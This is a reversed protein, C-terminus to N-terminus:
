KTLGEALGLKLTRLEKELDQKEQQLRQYEKYLYPAYHVLLAMSVKDMYNAPLVGRLSETIRKKSIARIQDLQITSNKNLGACSGQPVDILLPLGKGYKKSTIPAIVVSDMGGVLVVAPHDKEAEHGVGQGLRVTILKGRRYENKVDDSGRKDRCWLDTSELWTCADSVSLDLVLSALDRDAKEIQDTLPINDRAITTRAASSAKIARVEDLYIPM